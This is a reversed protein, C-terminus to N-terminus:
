YFNEYLELKKEEYELKRIQIEINRALRSNEMIDLDDKTKIDAGVLEKTELLIGDYIDINKKALSIKKDIRELDKIIKEYKKSQNEKLINYESLAILHELKSSEIDNFTNISFPMSLSLSYNYFKDHSDRIKSDTDMVDYSANLSLKPLYQSRTLKSLLKKNEIQNKQVLLSINQSIYEEKSPIKVHLIQINKYDKDSLKAFENVLVEKADELGLLMNEQNIKGLIANNLFSIDVLGALYQEKKRKIDLLSNQIYLRQQAQLKDNKLIKLLLKYASIVQTNKQSKIQSLGLLRSAEAYEIAYFIGGSRFIDQHLSVKGNFYSEDGMKSNVRNKGKSISLNLPNIWSNKLIKSSKEIKKEKLDLNEQLQESLISDGGYLLCSFLIVYLIKKM